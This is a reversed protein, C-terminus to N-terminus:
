CFDGGLHSASPMIALIILPENDLHWSRKVISMDTVSVKGCHSVDPQPTACLFGQRKLGQGDQSQIEASATPYVAAKPDLLQFIVKTKEQQVILKLPVRIYVKPSDLLM